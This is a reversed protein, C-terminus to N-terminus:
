SAGLHLSKKKIVNGDFRNRIYRNLCLPFLNSARFVCSQTPLCTRYLCHCSKQKQNQLMRHSSSSSFVCEYLYGVMLALTQKFSYYITKKKKKELSVPSLPISNCVIVKELVSNEIRQYAPGSFVGHTAFAFVRKAGRAKLEEAAKVLTGATDIM